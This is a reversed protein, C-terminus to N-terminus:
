LHKKKFLELLYRSIKKFIAFMFVKDEQTLKENKHKKDM